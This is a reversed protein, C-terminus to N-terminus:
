FLQTVNDFTLQPVASMKTRLQINQNLIHPELFATFCLNWWILNKLWKQSRHRRLLTESKEQISKLKAM